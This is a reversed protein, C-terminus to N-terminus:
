YRITTLLRAYLLFRSRKAEDKRQQYGSGLWYDTRRACEFRNRENKQCAAWVDRANGSGDSGSWFSGPQVGGTGEQRKRGSNGTVRRMRFSGEWCM